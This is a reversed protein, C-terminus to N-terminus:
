HRLLVDALYPLHPDRDRCARVVRDVDYPEIRPTLSQDSTDWILWHAGPRRNRPQGVSGPNAIQVGGTKWIVPYHTHGFFIFDAESKALRAITKESADPYVYEDINDPSGHCLLVKDGAVNILRDDDLDCLADLVVNDLQNLALELGSGYRRTIDALTSRNERAQQLMVEHNGRIADCRWAALLELCDDPWYYYGVFDGLALLREVGREKAAELVARLAPANAHIDSIVGIKM